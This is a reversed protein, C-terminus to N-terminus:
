LFFSFCFAKVESNWDGVDIFRTASVVMLATATTFLFQTKSHGPFVLSAGLTGGCM